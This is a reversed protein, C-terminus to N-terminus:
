HLLLKSYEQHRSFLIDLFQTGVLVGIVSLVPVIVDTIQLYTISVFAAMIGAVAISIVLSIYHSSPNLLTLSYRKQINSVDDQESM